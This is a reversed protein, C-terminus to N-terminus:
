TVPPRGLDIPVVEGTAGPRILSQKRWSEFEAAYIRHKNGTDKQDVISGPSTVDHYRWALYSEVELTEGNAASFIVSLNSPSWTDHMGSIRASKFDFAQNQLFYSHGPYGGITGRTRRAIETRVPSPILAGSKRQIRNITGACKAVELVENFRSWAMVRIKETELSLTGVGSVLRDPQEHEYIHASIEMLTDGTIMNDDMVAATKRPSAVGDRSKRDWKSWFQKRFATHHAYLDAGGSKSDALKKRYDDVLVGLEIAVDSGEPMKQWANITDEALQLDKEYDAVIMAVGEPDRFDWSDAAEWLTEVTNSTERHSAGADRFAVRIIEEARATEPDNFRGGWSPVDDFGHTVSAANRLDYKSYVVYRTDIEAGYLERAVFSMMAPQEIGGYLVGYAAMGDVSPMAAEAVAACSAMLVLPHDEERFTRIIMTAAHIYSQAGREGLNRISSLKRFFDSLNRAVAPAVNSCCHNVARMGFLLCDAYRAVARETDDVLRHNDQALVLAVDKMHRFFGPQLTEPHINSKDSAYVLGSDPEYLRHDSVLLHANLLFLHINKLQDLLMLAVLESAPTRIEMRTMTNRLANLTELQGIVDSFFVSGDFDHIRWPNVGKMEAPNGRSAMGPRIMYYSKGRSSLSVGDSHFHTGVGGQVYQAIDRCIEGSRVADQFEDMRCTVAGTSDLCNVM